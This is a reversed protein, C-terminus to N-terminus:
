SAVGLAKARALTNAYRKGARDLAIRAAEAKEAATLPNSQAMALKAHTAFHKGLLSRKRKEDYDGKILTGQEVEPWRASVYAERAQGLSAGQAILTRIVESHTTKSADLDAASPYKGLFPNPNKTAM